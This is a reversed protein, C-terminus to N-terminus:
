VGSAGRAMWQAIAWGHSEHTLLSAASRTPVWLVEHGAHLGGRDIGEIACELFTCRKEFHSKESASYAFQVARAAWAGLSILFGCEELAERHLAEPVTEGEEIGGGPLYVGDVSRVIAVRGDRDQLLGYASPRIVWPDGETRRGFVPADEWNTLSGDYEGSAPPTGPPGGVYSEGEFVEHCVFFRPSL